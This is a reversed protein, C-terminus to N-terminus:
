EVTIIPGNSLHLSLVIAVNLCKIIWTTQLIYAKNIKFPENLYQPQCKEYVSYQGNLWGSVICIFCM